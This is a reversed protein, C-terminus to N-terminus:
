VRMMLRGFPAAKYPAQIAQTITADLHPFGAPEQSPPAVLRPMRSRRPPFGWSAALKLRIVLIGSFRM